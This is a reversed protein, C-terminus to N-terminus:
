EEMDFMQIIPLTSSYLLVRHADLLRLKVQDWRKFTHEYDRGDDHHRYAITYVGTAMVRGRDKVRVPGVDVAGAPNVVALLAGLPNAHEGREAQRLLRAMVLRVRELVKHGRDVNGQLLAQEGIETELILARLTRSESLLKPNPKLKGELKGLARRLRAQVDQVADRLAPVQETAVDGLVHLANRIHENAPEDDTGPNPETGILRLANHILGLAETLLQRTDADREGALAMELRAAADWLESKQVAHAEKRAPTVIHTM